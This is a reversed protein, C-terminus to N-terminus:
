SKSHGYYSDYSIDFMLLIALNSNNTKDEAFLQYTISNSTRFYELLSIEINNMSTELRREIKQIDRNSAVQMIYNAAQELTM